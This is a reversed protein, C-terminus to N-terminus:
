QEAASTTVALLGTNGAMALIEKRAAAPDFGAQAGLPRPLAYLAFIVTEKGKSPCISYGRKGFSNRGLIAGQPLRGSGLGRLDPDLGAVAWDFFLAGDVPELNLVLLALEASGPPVGEWELQPWTDKGACTYAGPLAATSEGAPLLDPSHLSISALTAESRERATIQPVRPGKPPTIQAGQKGAGPSAAAAQQAASGQEAAESPATEGQSSSPKQSEGQAASKAAASGPRSATETASDTGCGFVVLMAAAALTLSFGIGAAKSM